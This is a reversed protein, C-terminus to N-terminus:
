GTNSVSFVNNLIENKDTKASKKLSLKNEYVTQFDNNDEHIEPYIKSVPKDIVLIIRDYDLL